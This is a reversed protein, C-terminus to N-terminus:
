PVFTRGKAKLIHECVERVAGYGALRSTVYDAASLAAPMATPVTVGIAAWHIAGVDIDDDGMYVCAEAPLNLKEALEQLAVLKDTRDQILHPIGLEKARVITAGSRRGSIWATAVDAKALRKLGMGDLISFTKTETGDSCIRLTGDTLIGDVDM